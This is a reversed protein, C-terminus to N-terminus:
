TNEALVLDPGLDEAMMSHVLEGVEVATKGKLEEPQLVKILHLHVHTAKLKKMNRFVKNTNQLTCVVIPVNAKQAIKFVGSRFPHLLGDMSTYGEPFVGISAKDEQIIKICNIITRLAEKDNERNIRQCQIKHMIKGVIFMSANERKSIFALQSKKFYALLTVPDLDNIHNCVLLFRGDGPIQELGKTHVKMRLISLVLQATHSVMFRHFKSDREQPKEIDVFACSLWLVLFFLLALVLLSALFGVPLIWLWHYSEFGGTLACIVAAILASLILGVNKIM